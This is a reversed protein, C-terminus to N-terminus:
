EKQLDEIIEKKRKELGEIKSIWEKKARLFNNIQVDKQALETRLLKLKTNLNNVEYTLAKKTESNM